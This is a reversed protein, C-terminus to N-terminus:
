KESIMLYVNYIFIHTHTSFTKFTYSSHTIESPHSFCSAKPDLQLKRYVILVFGAHIWQLGRWFVLGFEVPLVKRNYEQKRWFSTKCGDKVSCDNHKGCGRGRRDSESLLHVFAEEKDEQGFFHLWFPCLCIETLVTQM